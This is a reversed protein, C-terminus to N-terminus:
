SFLPESPLRLLFFISLPQLPRSRFPLPLICRIRFSRLGTGAYTIGDPWQWGAGAGKQRARPCPPRSPSPRFPLAAGPVLRPFIRIAALSRYRDEASWKCAWQELMRRRFNRRRRGADGDLVINEAAAAKEKWIVALDLLQRAPCLHGRRYDNAATRGGNNIPHRRKWTSQVKTSPRRQRFLCSSPIIQTLYLRKLWCSM